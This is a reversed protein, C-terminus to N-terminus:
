NREHIYKRCQKACFIVDRCVAFYSHAFVTENNYIKYAVVITKVTLM